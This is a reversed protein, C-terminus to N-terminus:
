RRNDGRRGSVVVIGLGLAVGPIGIALVLNKRDALVDDCLPEEAPGFVSGCGATASPSDPTPNPVTMGSFGLALIMIFAAVAIALGLNAIPAPRSRQAM